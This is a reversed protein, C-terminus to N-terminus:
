NLIWQSPRASIQYKDIEPFWWVTIEASKKGFSCLVIIYIWTTAVDGHRKHRIDEFRSVSISVIQFPRMQYMKEIYVDLPDQPIGSPCFLQERAAKLNGENLFKFHNETLILSERIITERETLNM